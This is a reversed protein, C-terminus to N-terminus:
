LTTSSLVWFYGWATQYLPIFLLLLLLLLLPFHNYLATEYKLVIIEAVLLHSIFAQSTFGGWMPYCLNIVPNLSDIVADAIRWMESPCLKGQMELRGENIDLISM